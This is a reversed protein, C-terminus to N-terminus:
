GHHEARQTQFLRLATSNALQHKVPFHDQGTASSFYIGQITHLTPWIAWNKKSNGACILRSWGVNSIGSGSTAHEM